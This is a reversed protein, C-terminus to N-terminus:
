NLWKYEVPEFFGQVENQILTTPTTPDSGVLGNKYYSNALPFLSSPVIVMNPTVGMPTGDPRRLAAMATRAAILNTINFSQTSYYARETMLQRGSDNWEVRGWIGDDRMQLEVIWGQAPSPQGQPAAVDTSHNVDLPLRGATMSAAIVAAPSKLHYPGRGDDGTFTGKPILHLWEPVTGMVAGAFPLHHIAKTLM